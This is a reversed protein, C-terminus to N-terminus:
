RDWWSLHERVDDTDLEVIQVHSDGVANLYDVYEQAKMKSYFYALTGDKVLPALKMMESEVAFIPNGM